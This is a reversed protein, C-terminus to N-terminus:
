NEVEKDNSNKLIEKAKRMCFFISILYIVVIFSFAKWAYTFILGGLVIVLILFRTYQERKIHFKKLSLTPFRSICLIGSVIIDVACFYSNKFFDINFSNFLIIPFLALIAGAPAPVGTFFKGSLPTKINEIDHVNFRALRLCMCVAFFASIIWGLRGLNSLSYIYMTLAPCVGFVAFDSLSDLEAGFRGCSNFLRALRGDTADLFAAGVVAMVAYEWKEALAFRIQTMGVLLASLTALNPIIKGLPLVEFIKRRNKRHKM